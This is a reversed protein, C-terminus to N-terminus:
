VHTIDRGMLNGYRHFDRSLSVERMFRLLEFRGNLFPPGVDLSSFNKAWEQVLADPPPSLARIRACMESQIRKTFTDLSRICEIGLPCIPSTGGIVLKVRTAKAAALILAVEHIQDHEQLFLFLTPHAQYFLQNDQGVLPALNHVKSFHAEQWYQYSSAGQAYELDTDISEFLQPLYNPGGAKMGTGFSSAKCGGFPQRGVIAGTIGRNIYCNGAKIKELWHAHERADLSHLGATLGYPTSNAFDLAEDLNKACMVGIVPGFFETQHSPTGKQVGFKIGPNWLKPNEPDNYPQVLWSEHEDLSTLAKLLHPSPPRILPNVKCRLDWASSCHLSKAADQLAFRFHPDNYVEEELIVLSCASCKQGAYGFSSQIIDRVALDRDALKTVIISNKGGTEAFLRLKPRMQLFLRATATAGTLIVTHVSPHQILYTGAPDDKCTIFQLANQPFGAQIFLQALTWGVLVAEEAPKFIVSFGAALSAVIGGLPIACPFNWPSAVVAVSLPSVKGSSNESLARSYYEIMDIAESVDSDAEPIIKGTEALMAGILDARKERLLQALKQFLVIKHELWLAQWTSNKAYSIARNIDECRALSYSHLLYEPRSPDIGQGREQTLIEKGEIYLPIEFHLNKWKECIAKGWVANHSLSWDTDPENTFPANEPLAIPLEFRNQSRRPACSATIKFSRRFFEVQREWADSNLTMGFLYPLFNDKHTNEDLRRMLYAISTHFEEKKAAPCYLLMDGSLEQVVKRMHNAMGELM